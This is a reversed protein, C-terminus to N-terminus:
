AAAGLTSYLNRALARVEWEAYYVRGEGDVQGAHLTGEDVAKYIAYITLGFEEQVQRLNLLRMAM